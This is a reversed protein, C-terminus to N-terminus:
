GFRSHEKDGFKGLEKEEAEEENFLFTKWQQQQSDEGIGHLMFLGPNSREGLAAIM